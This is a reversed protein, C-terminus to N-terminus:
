FNLVKSVIATITAEPTVSTVVPPTARRFTTRSKPAEQQSLNQATAAAQLVALNSQHNQEIQKSFEKHADIQIQPTVLTGKAKTGTIETHEITLGSAGDTVKIFGEQGPPTTMGFPEKLTMGSAREIPSVMSDLALTFSDANPTTMGFPETTKQPKKLGSIAQSNTEPKSRAVAKEGDDDEAPIFVLSQLSYRRAYSVASGYAQMDQKSLVLKMSSSMFEGSEHLLITEVFDGTSDSQVPQLVTIGENNLAEKCAEMVSGLDAYRSKFFPNAAGKTAAGINRQAKLIAASLNKITESTKM